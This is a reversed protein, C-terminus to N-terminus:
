FPIYVYLMLIQMKIVCLFIDSPLISYLIIFTVNVILLNIFATNFILIKFVDLVHQLRSVFYSVNHIVNKILIVGLDNLFICYILCLYILSTM